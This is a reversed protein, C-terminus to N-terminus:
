LKFFYHLTVEGRDRNFLEQAIEPTNPFFRMYSLNIDVGQYDSIFHTIRVLNEWQPAQRAPDFFQENLTEYGYTSWWGVSWHPTITYSTRLQPTLSNPGFTPFVLYAYAGVRWRSAIYEAGPQTLHTEAISYRAYRYRM